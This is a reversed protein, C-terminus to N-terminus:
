RSPHEARAGRRLRGLRRDAAAWRRRPRGIPRRHASRRRARARVPRHRARSGTAVGLRQRTMWTMEEVRGEALGRFGDRVALLTHGRDMGVRVAVRVATNMGPAPGGAHLVALRLARQGPEPRRPRSQTMTRLLRHSDRFSGGRLQMAKDRDRAAIVGAISRTTAVCELLPSSRLRHGRIGILQPEASPSDLLQRVAAHGLVTGLYRDFASPSGGRQVHGLKTVRTDDGLRKELVDRVQDATVPDGRSDRAGEAVLVISARRGIDRGARLVDCMADEWEEDPPNEPILVFNAGTALGGMLALYGCSRGMVEIVFTRQHSSATSQIADVAETIRHLATDAGITMDTGVMDNDISGVLGVLSLDRHADAHARAITGEDVLEDLLDPWQTRLEAAGSLSGDGGIVVLADVGLEVLNRAARRRGDRTRFDASRATGLVTGGQQMIGGVDASSLPRIHEGGDVLGQLGEYVGFVDLGADLAARVVARVAANM